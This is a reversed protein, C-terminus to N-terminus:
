ADREAGATYRSVVARGLALGLVAALLGTVMSVTLFGAATALRGDVVLVDVTVVVSSMTTFSGLLGTGLAPRVWPPASWLELLLVLLLALLFAGAINAVLVGWPWGGSPPLVLTVAHRALGGACGGVFVAALGAPAGTVPAHAGAVQM